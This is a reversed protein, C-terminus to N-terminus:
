SPLVLAGIYNMICPSSAFLRFGLKIKQSAEFPRPNGASTHGIQSFWLGWCESYNPRDHYNKQKNTQQGKKLQNTEDADSLFTLRIFLFSASKSPLYTVNSHKQPHATSIAHLVSCSRGTVPGSRFVPCELISIM